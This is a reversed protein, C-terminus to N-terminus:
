INKNDEELKEYWPISFDVITELDVKKPSAKIDLWALMWFLFVSHSEIINLIKLSQLM